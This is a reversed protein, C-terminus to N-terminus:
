PEQSNASRISGETVAGRLADAGVEVKFMEAEDHRVVLMFSFEHWVAFSILAEERGLLSPM